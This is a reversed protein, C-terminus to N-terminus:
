DQANGSHGQSHLEKDVETQPLFYSPVKPVSKDLDGQGPWPCLLFELVQESFAERRLRDRGMREESEM